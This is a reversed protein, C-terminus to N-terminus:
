LKLIYLESPEIANILLLSMHSLCELIYLESPEIANILILSM